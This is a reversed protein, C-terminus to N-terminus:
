STLGAQVREIAPKLLYVRNFESEAEKYARPHKEELQKLLCYAEAGAISMQGEPASDSKLNFYMRLGAYLAFFACEKDSAELNFKITNM